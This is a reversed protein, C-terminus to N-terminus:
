GVPFHPNSSYPLVAANRVFIYQPSWVLYKTKGRKNTRLHWFSPSYSIALRITSLLDFITLLTFQMWMKLILSDFILSAM